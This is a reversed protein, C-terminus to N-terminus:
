AQISAVNKHRMAALRDLDVNVPGFALICVFACSCMVPRGCECVRQMSQERFESLETWSDSSYLNRSFWKRVELLLCLETHICSPDFHPIISLSNGYLQWDRVKHDHESTGTPPTEPRTNICPVLLVLNENRLQNKAMQEGAVVVIIGFTAGSCNPLLRCLM